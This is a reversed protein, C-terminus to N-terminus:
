GHIAEDGGVLGIQPRDVPITNCPVYITFTTGRSSSQLDIRGNMAAVLQSVVYLGLGVGEQGAATEEIRSFAEFLQDRKDAPIGEGNDSVELQLGDAVARASVVVKTRDYTYKYANEVLNRVIQTVRYPDVEARLPEVFMELLHARRKGAAAETARKVTPELEVWEPQLQLGGSQVEASIFLDQVLRDLERGQLQVMELLHERKEPDLQDWRTRVTDIAAIMASLPGRIEHSTVAIYRDKLRDLEVLRTAQREFELRRNLWSTAMTAAVCGLSVSALVIFAYGARDFPTNTLDSLRVFALVSFVATAAAGIWAGTWRYRLAGSLIAFPIAALVYGKGAFTWAVGFALLMDLSFGLATIFRLDGDTRHGRAWWWLTLSGMAVVSVVVWGVTETAPDPWPSRMAIALAAAIVGVTRLVRLPRLAEQDPIL